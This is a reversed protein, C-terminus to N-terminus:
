AILRASGCLVVIRVSAYQLRWTVARYIIWYTSMLQPMYINPKRLWPVHPTRKMMATIVVPVNVRCARFCRRRVVGLTVVM